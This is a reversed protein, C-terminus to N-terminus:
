EANNMDEYHNPDNNNNSDDAPDNFNIPPAVPTMLASMIKGDKHKEGIIYAASTVSSGGILAIFADILGSNKLTKALEPNKAAFWVFAANVIPTLIPLWFTVQKWKPKSDPISPMITAPITAIKQNM